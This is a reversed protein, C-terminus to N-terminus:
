GAPAFLEVENISVHGPAQATGLSAAPARSIWTTVFRFAKTSDRLKIRTHRANLPLPPGLPVWASDTISAPPRHAATGYVQVTM